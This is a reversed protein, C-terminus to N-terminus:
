KRLAIAIRQLATLNTLIALLAIAYTLYIPSLAASGIGVFLLIMREGRGILGATMQESILNKEKAAAKAYTTMVSGFLFILIWLTAPIVADPIGAFFIGIIVLFEVYRDTITDIYAGKPGATKRHRAVSGDVADCLAALAFFAAGLIFNRYTICIMAFIALIISMCTWSNPSLFNCRRGIIGEVQKFRQRRSSIM